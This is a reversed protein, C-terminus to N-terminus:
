EGEVIMFAVERLLLDRALGSAQQKALSYVSRLSANSHVTEFVEADLFSEVVTKLVPTKTRPKTKAKPKSLRHVADRVGERWKGAHGNVMRSVTHWSVGLKSALDDDKAYLKELMEMDAKTIKVFKGTQM